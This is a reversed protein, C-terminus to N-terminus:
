VMRGSSSRIWRMGRYPGRQWLVGTVCYTRPSVTADPHCQLVVVMPGSGEALLAAGRWDVMRHRFEPANGRRTKAM